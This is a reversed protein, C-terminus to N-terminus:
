KHDDELILSELQKIRHIMNNQTEIMIHVIELLRDFQLQLNEYREM